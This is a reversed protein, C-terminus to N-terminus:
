RNRAFISEKSTGMIVRGSNLQCTFQLRAAYLSEKIYSFLSSFLEYKKGMTNTNKNKHTDYADLGIMQFNGLLDKGFM